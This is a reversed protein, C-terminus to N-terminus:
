APGRSRVACWTRGRRSPRPRRAPAHRFTVFGRVPSPRAGRRSRRRQPRGRDRPGAHCRPGPSAPRWELVKRPRVLEHPSGRRSPGDRRLNHRGGRCLLCKRPERFSHGLEAHWMLPPLDELVVSMGVHNVPSNTLTQIARDAPSEGRFIWIDGTRTINVATDLDIRSGASRADTHSPAHMPELRLRHSGSASLPPFEDPEGTHHAHCRGTDHRGACVPLALCVRRVLDAGPEM